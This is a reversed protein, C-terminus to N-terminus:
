RSQLILGLDDPYVTDVAMPLKPLCSSKNRSKIKSYSVSLVVIVTNCHKRSAYCFLNNQLIPFHTCATVKGGGKRGRRKRTEEQPGLKRERGGRLACNIGSIRDRLFFAILIRCDQQRCGNFYILSIRNPMNTMKSFSSSM